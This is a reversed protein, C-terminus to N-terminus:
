FSKGKKINQQFIRRKFNRLKRFLRAAPKENKYSESPKSSQLYSQELLDSAAGWTKTLKRDHIGTFTFSALDAEDIMDRNTKVFVVELPSLSRGFFASRWLVDGEKSTKNKFRVESNHCNVNNYIPLISEFNWGNKAIENSLRLEYALIVEFKEYAKDTKYFGIEILHKMAKRTLAYSTTQVHSGTCESSFMKSYKNKFDSWEPLINISAGVLHVNAQLKSTFIESWHRSLYPPTFPGRVSSNIFIYFEYCDIFHHNIFNSYGGFDNNINDTYIYKVNDFEPLSLSCNGSIVIYYDAEAHIGTSLFFTLNDRYVSDKEFYHYIIATGAAM